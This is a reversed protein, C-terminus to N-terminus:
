SVRTTNKIESRHTLVGLDPVARDAMEKLAFDHAIALEVCMALVLAINYPHEDYPFRGLMDSTLLDAELWGVAHTSTGREDAAAEHLILLMYEESILLKANDQIFGPMVKPIDAGAPGQQDNHYSYTNTITSVDDRMWQRQLTTIFDPNLGM